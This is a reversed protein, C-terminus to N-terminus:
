AARSTVRSRTRETFARAAALISQTDPKLTDPNHTDPKHTDLKHPDPKAAPAPPAGEAPEGDAQAFLKEAQAVKRLRALVDGGSKLYEAITSSYIEAERLKMSLTTESERLTAKLGITAREASATAAALEAITTKMSQEDGKLRSIQKNLRACYLITLLLLIAVLSEITLGFTYSM